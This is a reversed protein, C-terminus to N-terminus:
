RPVTDDLVSWQEKIALKNRFLCILLLQNHSIGKKDVRGRVFDGKMKQQQTPRILHFIFHLGLCVTYPQQHTLLQCSSTLVYSRTRWPVRPVGRGAGPGSRTFVYVRAFQLSHLCLQSPCIREQSRKDCQSTVDHWKDSDIQRRSLLCPTRRNRNASFQLSARRQM